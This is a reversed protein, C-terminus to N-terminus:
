LPKIWVSNLQTETLSRLIEDDHRNKEIELTLANKRIQYNADLHLKLKLIYNENKEPKKVEKRM